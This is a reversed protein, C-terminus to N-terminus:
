RTDHFGKHPIPNVEYREKQPFLQRSYKLQESSSFVRHLLAWSASVRIKLRLFPIGNTAKPSKLVHASQQRARVHLSPGTATPSLGSIVEALRPNRWKMAGTTSRPSM